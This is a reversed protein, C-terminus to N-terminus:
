DIVIVADDEEVTKAKKAAGEGETEGDSKRKGNTAAAVPKSEDDGAEFVELVEDDDDDAAGDTAGAASAIKAAPKEGGVIYKEETGDEGEEVRWEEKHTVCLDVELDQSFDEVRIVTGHVIGGCPLKSLLKPLNIEYIDTDADEGEEYIIDGELMVTPEEFGLDSKL